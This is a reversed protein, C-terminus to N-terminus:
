VRHWTSRGFQSLRYLGSGTGTPTAEDISPEPVGSGGGAGGAGQGGLSNGPLGFWALTFKRLGHQGRPDSLMQNVVYSVEQAFMPDNANVFMRRVESTLGADGWITVALLPAVESAITGCRIIPPLNM